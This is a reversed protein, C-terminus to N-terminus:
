VLSEAPPPRLGSTQLLRPMSDGVMLGLGAPRAAYSKGVVAQPVKLGDDLFEEAWDDSGGRSPLCCAKINALIRRCDVNSMVSFFNM